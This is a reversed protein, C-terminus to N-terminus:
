LKEHLRHQPSSSRISRLPATHGPISRARGSSGAPLPTITRATEIATRPTAIANAVKETSGSDRMPVAPERAITLTTEWGVGGTTALSKGISGFPCLGTSLSPRMGFGAVGVPEDTAAGVEHATLIEDDAPAVDAVTLAQIVAWSFPM